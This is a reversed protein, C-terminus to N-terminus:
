LPKELRREGTKAPEDAMKSLDTSIRPAQPRLSPGVGYDASLLFELSDASSQLAAVDNDLLQQYMGEFATSARGVTEEVKQLADEVTAGPAPYQSLEVYQRLMKLLHDLNQPVALAVLIGEPKRQLYNTLRAVTQALGEVRSRFAGPKLQRAMQALATASGGCKAAFEDREQATIGPAVSASESAPSPKPLLFSMGMYLGLGMAAAMWWPMALLLWAVLFGL